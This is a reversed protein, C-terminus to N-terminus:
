HSQADDGLTSKEHHDFPDTIKEWTRDRDLVADQIAKRRRQLYGNRVAAYLDLSTDEVDDYLKMNNARENLRQAAARGFDAAIPTIFWSLPDMFSDAAFGFADRVDLPPLLPLVLYPGPKVGYVAFTEGTDADSKELDLRSAVDFFGAVGVTTNIVFRTLEIGASQLRGQFVKNVFRRPMALNYFANALSQRMQDPIRSWVKAAPKIAYHDALNFNFYFTKDNFSEWPDYDMGDSPSPMDSALAARAQADSPRSADRQGSCGVLSVIVVSLIAFGLLLVLRGHPSDAYTVSQARGAMPRSNNHLRQFEMM